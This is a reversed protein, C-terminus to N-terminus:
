NTLTMSSGEARNFLGERQYPVASITEQQPLKPHRSQLIAAHFFTSAGSIVLSIFDIGSM